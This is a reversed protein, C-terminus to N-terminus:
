QAGNEWNVNLNIIETSPIIGNGVGIGAACVGPIARCGDSVARYKSQYVYPGGLSIRGVSEPLPLRLQVSVNAKHKMAFNLPDGKRPLTFSNFLTAPPLSAVIDAITPIETIKTTLYAYGAALQLGDFPSISLDAEFGKLSSKGANVIATTPQCTGKFTAVINPDCSVGAQLQQDKFDNYFGSINFNGPMAGRWSLKAGVEYTDVSEKDYPQIPDAGFITLGGQRYGRSWKAYFLMDSNPKYDLGLLWTPAKTKQRLTQSCASLREDFTFVGGFGKATPNTCVFTLGAPPVTTRVRWTMNNLQSTMSDWTYRLGGTVKFQETLDYSAQGYIAKSRFETAAISLSGQGASTGLVPDLPRCDFTNINTCPTLVATQVGSRGLPDSAEYYFGGQWTLRGDSSNGQFQLEEVMTSQSNTRGFTPEDHTYAFSQVQRAVETGPTAGDLIWYSGFLDMNNSIRLEAYSFINKIVLNDSVQWRTTNIVQWTENLSATDPLSTSVAWRGRGAERLFQRCALSTSTALCPTGAPGSQYAKIVKPISPTTESNLYSVILTHEVSDSLDAVATMRAAWYDTGGMASGYKGTGLNGVNKLYGDRQMRDLGFRLRLSDMAPINVVAQVRRMDFDGISGEVYGEFRDTPRKPVLLVAGGTSNRGQLTGQPGKLVQINELDFLQGPGAGDGGQSAGSGRPMVVDAFYTGVTATTRQEQSFGRITFAVNDNGYRSQAVLGPTYLTIDKASTVNNNALAESSLVTISIPVDQLREEVRRATVVIDNASSAGESSSSQAFTPATWVLSAASAALLLSRKTSKM